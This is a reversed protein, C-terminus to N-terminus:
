WSRCIDPVLTNLVSTCWPLSLYHESNVNSAKNSKGLGQCIDSVLTYLVSTCWPLSLYHESNVNSAKNSKGLGQCIDPVLTNLVSSAKKDNDKISSESEM